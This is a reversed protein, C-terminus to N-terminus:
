QILTSVVSEVNGLGAWYIFESIKEGNKTQDENYEAVRQTDCEHKTKRKKANSGPVRKTDRVGQTDGDQENDYLLGSFCGEKDGINDNLFSVTIM